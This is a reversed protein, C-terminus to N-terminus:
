TSPAQLQRRCYYIFFSYIICFVVYWHNTSPDKSLFAVCFDVLFFQGVQYWPLYNILRSIVFILILCTFKARIRRCLHRYKQCLLSTIVHSLAVHPHRWVTVLRQWGLLCVARCKTDGLFVKVAGDGDHGFQLCQYPRTLWQIRLQM